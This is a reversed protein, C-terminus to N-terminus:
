MEESLKLAARLADGSDLKIGLEGETNEIFNLAKRGAERLAINERSSARTNWAAIAAPGGGNLDDRTPGKTFCTQCEVRFHGNRYGGQQLEPKSEKCWPSPCAELKDTDSVM